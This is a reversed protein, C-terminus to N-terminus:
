FLFTNYAFNRCAEAQAKAWMQTLDHPHLPQSSSIISKGHPRSAQIACKFDIFSAKNELGREVGALHVRKLM